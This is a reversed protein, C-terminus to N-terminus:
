ERLGVASLPAHSASDHAMAPNQGFRPKLRGIVVVVISGALALAIGWTLQSAAADSTAQDTATQLIAFRSRCYFHSAPVLVALWTLKVRIWRLRLFHRPFQLLLAVGLVMAVLLAPVVLCIMVRSVLRLVLARRADSLDLSKFDSAIWFGLVAALGGLYLAIAIVKPVLLWPRVGRGGKRGFRNPYPESM